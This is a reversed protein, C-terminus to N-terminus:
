SIQKSCKPKEFFVKQDRLRAFCFDGFEGNTKPDIVHCFQQVLKLRHGQMPNICKIVPSFPYLM